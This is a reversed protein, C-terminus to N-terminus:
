RPNFGALALDAGALKSMELRRVWGRPELRAFYGRLFSDAPFQVAAPRLLFVPRASGVAETVLTVSDQTVCM